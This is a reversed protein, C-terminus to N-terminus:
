SLLDAVCCRFFIGRLLEPNSAMASLKRESLDKMEARTKAQHGKLEKDIKWQVTQITGAQYDFM